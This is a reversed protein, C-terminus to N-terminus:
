KRKMEKFIQQYIQNGKKGLDLAHTDRRSQTPSTVSDCFLPTCLEYARDEDVAVSIFTERNANYRVSVMIEFGSRSYASLVDDIVLNALRDLLVREMDPPVEDLLLVSGEPNMRGNDEYGIEWEWVYRDEFSDYRLAFVIDILLVFSHSAQMVFANAVNTAIIEPLIPKGWEQGDMNGVRRNSFDERGTRTRGSDDLVTVKTYDYIDPCLKILDNFRFVGASGRNSGRLCQIFEYEEPSQEQVVERFRELEKDLNDGRAGRVSDRILGRMPTIHDDDERTGLRDEMVLEMRNKHLGTLMRAAYSSPLTNKRSNGTAVRGTIHDSRYNTSMQTGDSTYRRANSAFDYRSLVDQPRISYMTEAGSARNATGFVQNNNIAREMEIELVSNIYFDMDPPLERSRKSFEVRDTYGSVLYVRDPMHASPAEEVVKCFFCFRKRDWGNKLELYDDNIDVEGQLEMLPSRSEAIKSSSFGSGNTRSLEDVLRDITSSNIPAFELTRLYRDNYQGSEFLRLDVVAFSGTTSEAGRYSQNRSM